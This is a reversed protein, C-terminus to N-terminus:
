RREKVKGAIYGVMDKVKLVPRGPHDAAIERLRAPTLFPLGAPKEGGRVGALFLQGEEVKIRFTEELAAALELLDVSEANLDRYVYSEPTIAAAERDLIVMLINRIEGFIDESQGTM